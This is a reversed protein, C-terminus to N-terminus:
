YHFSVKPLFFSLLLSTPDSLVLHGILITKGPEIIASVQAQFGTLSSQLLGSTLCLFSIGQNLSISSHIDKALFLLFTERERGREKEGERGKEREGEGERGEEGM